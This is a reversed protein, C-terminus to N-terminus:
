IRPRVSVSLLRNILTVAGSRAEPQPRGAQHALHTSISRTVIGLIRSMLESYAAHRFRLPFPVTLVWQHISRSPLVEDVQLAANEM